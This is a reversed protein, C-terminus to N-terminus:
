KVLAIFAMVSLSIRSRSWDAERNPRAEPRIISIASSCHVRNKGNRYGTTQTGGKFGRFFGQNSWELGKSVLVLLYSM